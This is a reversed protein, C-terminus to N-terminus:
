GIQMNTPILQIIRALCAAGQALTLGLLLRHVYSPGIITRIISYIPVMKHALTLGLLLRHVYSPGM